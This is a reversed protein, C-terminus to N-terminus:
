TGTILRKKAQKFEEDSLLGNGLLASLRHIEDAIGIGGESSQGRPRHLAALKDEIFSKIKIAMEENQGFAFTNEDDIAMFVGKGREIAGPLTFQIFGVTGHSVPKFQIAIISEYPISKTGALGRTMFGFFDFPCLEIRDEFVKIYSKRGRMYLLIGPEKSVPDVEEEENKGQREANDARSSMQKEAAVIAGRMKLAERKVDEVAIRRIVDGAENVLVYSILTTRSKAMCPAADSKLIEARSIKTAAIFLEYDDLDM